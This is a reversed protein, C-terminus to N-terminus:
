GGDETESVLASVIGWMYRHIYAFVYRMSAVGPEVSPAQSAKSSTSM